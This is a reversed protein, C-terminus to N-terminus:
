QNIRTFIRGAIARFIDLLEDGSPAFYYNGCPQATAAGACPNTALNADDGAAAYYRLLKEGIEADGLSGDVVLGGLGITFAVIGNGVPEDLFAFDGWDLAYDVADYGVDGSIHRGAGITFSPNSARCFPDTPPPMYWTYQPCFGLQLGTGYDPGESGLGSANAAGDTLLVIVRLREKSPHNEGANPVPYTPDFEKLLETTGARIGGGINTNTCQRPDWDFASPGAPASDEYGPCPPIPYDPPDGAWTPIGLQLNTIFDRAAGIDTTL